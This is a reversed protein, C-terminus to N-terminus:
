DKPQAIAWHSVVFFLLVSRFMHIIDVHVNTVHSLLNINKYQNIKGIRKVTIEDSYSCGPIGIVLM